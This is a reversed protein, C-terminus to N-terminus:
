SRSWRRLVEEVTMFKAGMGRLSKISEELWWATSIRRPLPRNRGDGPAINHCILIAWWDDQTAMHDYEAIRRQKSGKWPMRLCSGIHVQKLAYRDFPPLKEFDAYDGGGARAGAYHKKVLSKVRANHKGYPYAFTACEKGTRDEIVKKSEVVEFPLFSARMPPAGSIELLDVHTMTHSGIEHGGRSLELWPSWDKIGAPCVYFTAKVGHRELIPAGVKHQSAKREAGDDFTISVVRV